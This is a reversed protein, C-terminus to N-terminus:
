PNRRTGSFHLCAPWLAGRPDVLVLYASFCFSYGYKLDEKQFLLLGIRAVSRQSVKIEVPVSEALFMLLLM